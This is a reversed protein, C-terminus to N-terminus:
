WCCTLAQQRRHESQSCPRHMAAAVQTRLQLTGSGLMIPVGAAAAAKGAAGHRRHGTSRPQNHDSTAPASGRVECHVRCGGKAPQSHGLAGATGLNLVAGAQQHASPAHLATATYRAGAADADALWVRQPAAAAAGSRLLQARRRAPSARSCCSCRSRGRCGQCCCCCQQRRLWRAAPSGAPRPGHWQCPRRRPPTRLLHHV